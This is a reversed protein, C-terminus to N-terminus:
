TGRVTIAAALCATYQYIRGDQGYSGIFVVRQDRIVIVAPRGEYSGLALQDTALVGDFDQELAEVVDIPQGAFRDIDGGVRQGGGCDPGRVEATTPLAASSAQSPGSAVALPSTVPSSPM